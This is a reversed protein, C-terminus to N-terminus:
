VRKGVVYGVLFTIGIIVFIWQNFTITMNGIQLARTEAMWNVFEALKEM